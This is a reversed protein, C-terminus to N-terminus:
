ADLRRDDKTIAYVTTTHTDANPMFGRLVEAWPRDGMILSDCMNMARQMADPLHAPMSSEIGCPSVVFLREIM